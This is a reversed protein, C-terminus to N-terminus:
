NLIADGYLKAGKIHCLIDRPEFLEEIHFVGSEPKSGILRRVALAAVEATAQAECNGLIAGHRFVKAGNTNSCVSVKISYVDTGMKLNRLIFKLSKRVIAYKLLKFFRIRALAALFGTTMSSEFCMRTRVNPIGLTDSLVYQDSFNFNYTTHSELDSPFMVERGDQFSRVKTTLGDISLEYDNQLNNLIWEISGDGHEEGLGFLLNIEAKTVEDMGLCCQKVLLNSIGPDLGVSVIATVRNEIALGHLGKIASILRYSATTDIYHMGAQLCYQAFDSSPLELSMVIIEVQSLDHDEWNDTVNLQRSHVKGNTQMSFKEAKELSRGAAIVDGPFYEALALCIRSGVDGYGGVVLIKRDM